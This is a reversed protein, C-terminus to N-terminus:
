GRRSTGARIKKVLQNVSRKDLDIVDDHDEVWFYSKDAKVGIPTCEFPDRNSAVNKAITDAWPAVSIEKGSKSKINMTLDLM